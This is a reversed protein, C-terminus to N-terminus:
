NFGGVSALPHLNNNNNNSSNNNNNNNNINNNNNSSSPKTLSPSTKSTAAGLRELVTYVLKKLLRLESALAVMDSQKASGRLRFFGQALEQATIRKDGDEDHM